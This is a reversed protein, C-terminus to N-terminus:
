TVCIIVELSAAQQMNYPTLFTSLQCVRGLVEGCHVLGDRTVGHSASLDPCLNEVQCGLVAALKLALSFTLTSVRCHSMGDRDLDLTSDHDLNVRM